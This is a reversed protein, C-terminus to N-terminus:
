DWREFVRRFREPEWWVQQVEHRGETENASLHIVNALISVAEVKLMGRAADGRITGGPAQFPNTKGAYDSRLSAWSFRSGLPQEIWIAITGGTEFDKELKAYFGNLLVVVKRHLEQPVTPDGPLELGLAFSDDDLRQIRRAADLESSRDLEWLENLREPSIGEKVLDYPTRVLWSGFPMAFAKDFGTPDDAPGYIQELKTRGAESLAALGGHAVRHFGAYHLAMLGEKKIDAGNWWVVSRIRCAFSM